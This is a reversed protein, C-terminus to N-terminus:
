MKACYLLCFGVTFALNTLVGVVLWLRLQKIQNTQKHDIANLSYQAKGAIEALDNKTVADDSYSKM